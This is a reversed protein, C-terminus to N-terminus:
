KEAKENKNEEKACTGGRASLGGRYLLFSYRLLEEGIAGGDSQGLKVFLEASASALYVLLLDACAKGDTLSYPDASFLAFSVFASEEREALDDLTLPAPCGLESARDLSYLGEVQSLVSVFFSLM